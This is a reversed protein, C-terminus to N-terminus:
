NLCYDTLFSFFTFFAIFSTYGNLYKPIAAPKAVTSHKHDAILM